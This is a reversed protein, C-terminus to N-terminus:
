FEYFSKPFSSKELEKKFADYKWIGGGAHAMNLVSGFYSDDLDLTLWYEDHSKVFITSQLAIPGHQVDAENQARWFVLVYEKKELMTTATMLVTVHTLVTTLDFSRTEVTASVGMKKLSSLGSADAHALLAKGDGVWMARLYSRFAAIPQSYDYTFPDRKEFVVAPNLVVARYCNTWEAWGNM